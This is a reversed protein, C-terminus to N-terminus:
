LYGMNKPSLVVKVKSWREHNRPGFTCWVLAYLCTLFDQAKKKTSQLRWESWSSATSPPTLPHGACPWAGSAEANVGLIMPVKIASTWFLLVLPFIHFFHLVGKFACSNSKASKFMLSTLSNNIKISTKSIPIELRQPPSAHFREPVAAEQLFGSLGYIKEILDDLPRYVLTSHWSHKCKLNSSISTSNTREFTQKFNFM